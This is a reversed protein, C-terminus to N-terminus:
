IHILSLEHVLQSSFPDKEQESVLENVPSNLCDRTDYLVQKSTQRFTEFAEELTHEKDVQNGNLESQSLQHFEQVQDPSTTPVHQNLHTM